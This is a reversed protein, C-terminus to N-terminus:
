LPSNRRMNKRISIAQEVNEDGLTNYVCKICHCMGVAGDKILSSTYTKYITKKICFMSRSTKRSTVSRCDKLGRILRMYVLNIDSRGKRIVMILSYEKLLRQNQTEGRVYCYLTKIGTALKLRIQVVKRNSSARKKRNM